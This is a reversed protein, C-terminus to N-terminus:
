IHRSLAAHFFILSVCWVCVYRRWMKLFFNFVEPYLFRVKRLDINVKESEDVVANEVHM